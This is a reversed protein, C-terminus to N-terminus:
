KLPFMQGEPDLRKVYDVLREWVEPELWILNTPHMPGEEETSLGLYYGDWQVYVADGLYEKREVPM